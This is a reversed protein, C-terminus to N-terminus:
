NKEQTRGEKRLEEEETRGENRRRGEGAKHLVGV